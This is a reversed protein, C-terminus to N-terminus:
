GGLWDKLLPLVEALIVLGIMWQLLTLRGDIRTIENKLDARTALQELHADQAAKVTETVAKAQRENLGSDTLRKVAEYTDFTLASM